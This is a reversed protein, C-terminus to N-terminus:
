LSHMQILQLMVCSRCHLFLILGLYSLILYLENRILSLLVCSVEFHMLLRLLIQVLFFTIFFLPASQKTGFALTRLCFPSPPLALCLSFRLRTNTKFLFCDCSTTIAKKYPIIFFIIWCFSLKCRRIYTVPPYSPLFSPSISYQIQKM